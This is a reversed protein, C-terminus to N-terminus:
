DSVKRQWKGCPGILKRARLEMPVTETPDRKALVFEVEMDANIAGFENVRFSSADSNLKFDENLIEISNHIQEDSINDYDNYYM